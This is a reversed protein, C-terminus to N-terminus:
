VESPFVIVAVAPADAAARGVTGAHLEPDVFVIPLSLWAELETPAFRAAAM